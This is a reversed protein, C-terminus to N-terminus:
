RNSVVEVKVVRSKVQEPEFQITETAAKLAKARVEAKRKAMVTVEKRQVAKLEVVVTYPQEAKVPASVAPKRLSVRRRKKGGVGPRPLVKFPMPRGRSPVQVESDADYKIGVVRKGEFAKLDKPFILYAVHKQFLAGTVGYDKQTGAPPQIVTMVRHQRVM